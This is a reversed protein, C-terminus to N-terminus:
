QRPGPGETRRRKFPIEVGPGLYRVESYRYPRYFPEQTFVQDLTQESLSWLPPWAAPDDRPPWVQILQGQPSRLRTTAATRHVGFVKLALHGLVALVSYAEVDSDDPDEEGLRVLLRAALVGVHRARYRGYGVYVRAHPEGHEHLRRRHSKPVGQSKREVALVAYAARAGWAALLRQEAPAYVRAGSEVM